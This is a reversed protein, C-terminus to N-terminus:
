GGILPTIFLLEEGDKLDRQGDRDMAVASNRHFLVVKRGELMGKLDLGLKEGLVRIADELMVGEPLEFELVRGGLKPWLDKFQLASLVVKIRM